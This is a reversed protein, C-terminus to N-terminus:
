GQAALGAHTLLADYERQPSFEVFATDEEFLPTHGPPLYYAEGARIVEGRGDTYRVRIAGKLIYGWHPCPCMDDPLGRLAQALDTGAGVEAYSCAMGGWPTSRVTTGPVDMLAPLDTVRQKM